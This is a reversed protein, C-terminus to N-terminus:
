FVLIQVKDESSNYRGRLDDQNLFKLLPLHTEKMDFIGRKKQDIYSGDIVILKLNALSLADSIVM